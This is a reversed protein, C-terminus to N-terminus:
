GGILVAPDVSVYTSGVTSSCTDSCFGDWGDQCDAEVVEHTVAGGVAGVVQTKQVCVSGQTGTSNQVGDDVIPAYFSWPSLGGHATAQDASFGSGGVPSSAQLQPITHRRMLTGEIVELDVTEAAVVEGSELLTTVFPVAGYHYILRPRVETDVVVVSTGPDSGPMIKTTVQGSLARPALFILHGDLMAGVQIDYDDLYATEVYFTSILHVLGDHASADLGASPIFPAVAQPVQAPDLPDSDRALEESDSYGDQDSDSLWDLTGLISEAQDEIGDGDLDFQGPIAVEGAQLEGTEPLATALLAGAAIWGLAPLALTTRSSQPRSPTPLAQDLDTAQKM